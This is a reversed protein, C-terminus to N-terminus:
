NSTMEGFIQELTKEKLQLSLVTNNNEVAFNFIKSRVDVDKNFLIEYTNKAASNVKTVGEIDRIHKTNVPKEFEVSLSMDSEKILKKINTRSDDAVISGKHIIIIRDCIAEVEQMLHTSLLVTKKKGLNQIVNRIEVIQNPDLGSTAEDLILVEPDHIIAQALGVRQRYGKSLKGIKKHIEPALGTLEIVEEIRSKKNQIKYIGAIFNLFEVIYMDLYLPNQEPLYGLVKRVEKTNELVNLGNVFTNGNTPPIYGTLIKMMTSKGAGNPGLFGVIEGSEVSFSVNNLAKQTGYLKTINKIEISM